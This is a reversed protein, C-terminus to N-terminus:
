AEAEPPAPAPRLRRQNPRLARPAHNPKGKVAERMKTPEHFQFVWPFKAYYVRYLLGVCWCFYHMLFMGLVLMPMTISWSTLLNPLKAYQGYTKVIALSTGLWGWTYIVVAAVWLVVNIFYSAGCANIVKLVRDPRLNFSTGSTQLTLLVAPFFFTGVGGLLALLAFKANASIHAFIALLMPGYCILLSGMVGVLPSWIDEYWGLDRLPRPLEDRQNPGIDEVINGYHAMLLCVMFPVAMVIIFFGAAVVLVLPMMLLHVVYVALMVALNLPMFLQVFAWAMSSSRGMGPTAYILAPKAIPISRPDVPEDDSQKVEIPRILEGTEPDYKPAAERPTIDPALPIPEGGVAEIDARTIRLDIENGEADIKARQYVYALDATAEPRVLPADVKYTGDDSISELDSLSPVDNLRGCHPCQVLGAAESDDLEFPHGCHCFFRIV